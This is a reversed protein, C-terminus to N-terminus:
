GNGGDDVRVLGYSPIGDVIAEAYHWDGFTFAIKLETNDPLTRMSPGFYFPDDFMPTKGSVYYDSRMCLGQWDTVHDLVPALRKVKAANVWGIRHHDFDVQYTILLWSDKKAIVTFWDNLSVSAKGKASRLYNTGPGTYVELRTDVAIHVATPLLGQETELWKNETLRHEAFWFSKQWSGKDLDRNVQQYAFVQRPQHMEDMLLVYHDNLMCQRNGNAYQTLMWRGKSNREAAINWARNAEDMWHVLLSSESTKTLIVEAYSAFFGTRSLESRKGDSSLQEHVLAPNDHIWDIRFIDRDFTIEQVGDALACLPLLLLVLVLITARKM